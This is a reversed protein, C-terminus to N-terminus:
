KRSDSTRRRGDRTCYRLTTGCPRRLCAMQEVANTIGALSIVRCFIRMGYENKWLQAVRSETLDADSWKLTTKKDFTEDASYRYFSLNFAVLPKGAGGCSVWSEGDRFIEDKVNRKFTAGADEGVIELVCINEGALGVLQVEVM